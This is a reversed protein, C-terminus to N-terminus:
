EPSALRLVYEKHAHGLIIKYERLQGHQHYQKQAKTRKKQYPNKKSENIKQKKKQTHTPPPTPSPNQKEHWSLCSDGCRQAPQVTKM